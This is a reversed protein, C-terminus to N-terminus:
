RKRKVKCTHLLTDRVAARVEDRTLVGNNDKDYKLFTAKRKAEDFKLQGLKAFCSDLYKGFEEMTLTNSKDQDAKEMVRNLCEEVMEETVETM